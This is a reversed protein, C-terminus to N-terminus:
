APAEAEVVLVLERQLLDAVLVVQRAFPDALQLLLREALDALVHSVLDGLSIRTGRIASPSKTRVRTPVEDGESAGSGLRGSEGEAVRAGRPRSPSERDRRRACCSPRRLRPPLIM